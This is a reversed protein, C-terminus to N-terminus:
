FKKESGGNTNLYETIVYLLFSSMSRQQSKAMSKVADYIDTPAYATLPKDTRDTDNKKNLIM